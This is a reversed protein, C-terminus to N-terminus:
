SIFPLYSQGLNPISEIYGNGLILVTLGRTDRQETANLPYQFYDSNPFDVVYLM